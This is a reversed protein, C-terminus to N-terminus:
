RLRPSATTKSSTIRLMRNGGRQFEYGVTEIHAVYGQAALRSITPNLHPSYEGALTLLPFVRVEDAVRLMELLAQLHFDLTLQDSYLFLLHSSLALRFQRDTFPLDPLAGPLYRGEHKGTEYDALFTTMAGTRLKDLDDVSGVQTWDYADKNRRLQELVTDRTEDIRNKIQAGGFTYLPDISVVQAGNNTAIANFSAPGDGCGLISQELDDATLKFMALYEDYTRGWPVITELTFAM